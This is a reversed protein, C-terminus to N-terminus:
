QKGFHVYDPEVVYQEPIKSPDDLLAQMEPKHAWGVVGVVSRGQSRLWHIRGAMYANREHVMAEAPGPLLRTLVAVLDAIDEDSAMSPHLDPAFESGDVGLRGFVADAEDVTEWLAEREAPTRLRAVARSLAALSFMSDSLARMTTETTQDILSVTAGIERATEAAPLMDAEGPDLDDDFVLQQTLALTVFLAADRARWSRLNRLSLTEDNWLRTFRKADLEIAVHDPRVDSVTEIVDRRSEPSTHVTGVLTVDGRRRPLLSDWIM